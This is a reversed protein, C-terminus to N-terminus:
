GQEPICPNRRERREPTEGALFEKPFLAQFDEQRQSARAGVRGLQRAWAQLLHTHTLTQGLLNIVQPLLSASGKSANRRDEFLPKHGPGQPPPPSASSAANVEGKVALRGGNRGAKGEAGTEM